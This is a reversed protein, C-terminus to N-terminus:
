VDCPSKPFFLQTRILEYCKYFRYPIQLSRASGSLPVIGRLITMLDPFHTSNHIGHAGTADSIQTVLDTMTQSDYESFTLIVLQSSYYDTSFAEIAANTMAIFRELAAEPSIRLEAALGAVALEVPPALFIHHVDFESKGRYTERWYKHSFPFFSSGHIMVDHMSTYMSSYINQVVSSVLASQDESAIDGSAIRLLCDREVQAIHLPGAEGGAGPSPQPPAPCGFAQLLSLSITDMSKIEKGVKGLQGLRSMDALASSGQEVEGQGQNQPAFLSRLVITSATIVSGSALGSVLVLPRSGRGGGAMDDCYSKVSSLYQEVRSHLCGDKNFSNRDHVLPELREDHLTKEHDTHYHAQPFRIYTKEYTEKLTAAITECPSAPINNAKCYSAATIVYDSCVNMDIRRRVVSSSSKDFVFSFWTTATKNINAEANSLSTIFSSVSQMRSNGSGLSLSSAASQLMGAAESFLADSNLLSIALNYQVAAAARCADDTWHRSTCLGGAAVLGRRAEEFLGRAAGFEEDRFLRIANSFHTNLASIAISQGEEERPFPNDMLVTCWDSGWLPYEETPSYLNDVVDRLTYTSTVLLGLLSDTVRVPRRMLLDVEHGAYAGGTRATGYCPYHLAPLPFPRSAACTLPFADRRVLICNVGCQECYVMDYGFVSGLKQFAAPNAGHYRSLDWTHLDTLHPHIMTQAVTNAENFRERFHEGQANHFVGLTPNVEVIIVRPMFHGDRLLRMLLWWDFSDVDLSLVDFSQPVDYKAFLALINDVTVHERRLNIDANTNGGDMMLGTFNLAERLIRSNCEKGDQVGFEVYQKNTAGIAELIRLLVGDEGNQSFIKEEYAALNDLKCKSSGTAYDQERARVLAAVCAVVAILLSPWMVGSLWLGQIFLQEFISIKIIHV